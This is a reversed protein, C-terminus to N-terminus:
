RCLRAHVEELGPEWDNPLELREAELSAIPYSCYDAAFFGSPRHNGSAGIGGFPLRGSAGTTQRNWNVIGARVREVFYEFAQPDDSLLGASLGYETRNALETAEELSDAWQVVLLPGFVEHDPPPQDTVELLGPTLAAPHESLPQALRLSRMTLQEVYRQQQELVAAAASESILSGMFPPPSGLPDGVRISDISAALQELLQAGSGGRILILRRACSCRQGSTVYASLLVQYVAAAVNGTRDVVLPNNGGLELALLTEPREVLQQQLLGGARRSGTLLVGGIRRDAVAWQAVEAEGQILNLVGAPLGAREWAAALWEGVGATLPSPKFVLTNGAILGPVIHGGPLHAPLNFPGLVLLSGLPRYRTVARLSGVAEVTEDRRQRLADVSLQVKGICARVETTSEWLPKGTQQTILTALEDLGAELQEAYRVAIAIREVLPRNAWAPRAADAAEIAQDVQSRSAARGSWILQGSWPDRNELPPHESEGAWWRGGIWQEGRLKSATSAM